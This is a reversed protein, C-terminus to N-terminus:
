PRKATKICDIILNDIIDLIIDREYGLLVLKRLLKVKVIVKTMQKYQM